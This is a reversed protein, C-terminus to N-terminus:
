SVVEVHSNEDLTISSLEGNDKTFHVSVVVIEDEPVRDTALGTALFHVARFVGEVTAKWAASSGVRVVQTVRIRQGPKLGRLLSALEPRVPRTSSPLTNAPAAPTPVTSM